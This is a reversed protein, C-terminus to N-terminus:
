NKFIILYVTSLVLFVNKHDFERILDFGTVLATNVGVGM